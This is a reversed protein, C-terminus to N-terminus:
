VAGEPEDEILDKPRKDQELPPTQLEGLRPKGGRKLPSQGKRIVSSIIREVSM